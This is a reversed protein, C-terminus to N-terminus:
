QAHLERRGLAVDHLYGRLDRLLHRPAVHVSPRLSGETLVLADSDGYRHLGFYHLIRSYSEGLVM